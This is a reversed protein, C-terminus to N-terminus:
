PLTLIIVGTHAHAALVHTAANHTTGRNITLSGHAPAGKITCTSYYNPQNM